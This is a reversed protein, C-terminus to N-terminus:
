YSPLHSHMCPKSCTLHLMYLQQNLTLVEWFHLNNVWSHFATLILISDISICHDLLQKLVTRWGDNKIKSSDTACIADRKIESINWLVFELLCHLLQANPIKDSIMQKYDWTFLFLQTFFLKLKKSILLWKALGNIYVNASTSNARM